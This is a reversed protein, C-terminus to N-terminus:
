GHEALYASKVVRYGVYGYILCVLVLVLLPHHLLQKIAPKCLQDVWFVGSSIGLM